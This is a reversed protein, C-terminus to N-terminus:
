VSSPDNDFRSKTVMRCIPPLAPYEYTFEFTVLFSGGEYPTGDPGQIWGKFALLDCDDSEVRIGDLPAVQLCRIEKLLRRVVQPSLSQLM